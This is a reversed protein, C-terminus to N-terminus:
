ALEIVTLQVAARQSSRRMVELYPAVLPDKALTDTFYVIQRAGMGRLQREVMLAGQEVEEALLLHDYWTILDGARLLGYKGSLILFGQGTALAAAYVQKIRQDRYREIAPLLGDARDTEASCYTCFFTM